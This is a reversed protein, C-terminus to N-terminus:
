NGFTGPDLLLEWLRARPADGDSATVLWGSGAPDPALVVDNGDWGSPSVRVVESTFAPVGLALVGVQDAALVTDLLEPQKSRMWDGLPNMPLEPVREAPVDALQDYYASVQVYRFREAVIWAAWPDMEGNPVGMRGGGAGGSSVTGLSSVVVVREPVTPDLLYADAVDTLRGGTVVVAPRDPTALDKSADVILRAGESDNAVTSEVIDDAPRVLPVSTSTIPDPLNSLGSDRGATVLEQWGGANAALDFWMGGTSVVIAALRPSTKQALLVAYEGQWNDTAGDNCLIIPNSPGVPL